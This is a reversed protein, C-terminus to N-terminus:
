TKIIQITCFQSVFVPPPREKFDESVYPSNQKLKKTSIKLRSAFFSKTYNWEKKHFYVKSSDNKFSGTFSIKSQHYIHLIEKHDTSYYHHQVVPKEVGKNPIKNKKREKKKKNVSISKESTSLFKKTRESKKPNPFNHVLTGESIYIFVEQSKLNEKQLVLEDTNNNNQYAFVNSIILLFLVCLAGRFLYFLELIIYKMM